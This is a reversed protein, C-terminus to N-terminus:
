GAVLVVEAVTRQNATIRVEQEKVAYGAAAIRLTHAGEPLHQIYAQGLGSSKRKPKLGKVTILARAVPMGAENVIRLQLARARHGLKRLKRAMLYKAVFDPATDAYILLLLDLSKCAEVGMKRFHEISHRAEKRARIVPKPADILGSFTTAAAGAAAVLATDVGYPGLAPLHTAALDGIQKAIGLLALGTAKSLSWATPSAEKQLAENQSVVAYAKLGKVISFIRAELAKRAEMKTIFPPRALQGMAGAKMGALATNLEAAFAACAANGSWIAAHADMVEAVYRLMQQYGSEKDNM